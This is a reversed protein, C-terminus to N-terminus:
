YGGEIRQWSDGIADRKAIWGLPLDAIEEVSRDLAVIDGLCVVAGDVVEPDANGELFQWGADEEDHSVLM